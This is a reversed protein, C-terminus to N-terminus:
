VARRVASAVWGHLACAKAADRIREPAQDPTMNFIASGLHEIAKDFSVWTYTLVQCVIVQCVLKRNAKKSPVANVWDIWAQKNSM